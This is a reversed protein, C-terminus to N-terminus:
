RSFYTRMEREGDRERAVIAVLRPGTERSSLKGIAVEVRNKEQSRIMGKKLSKSVVSTGQSVSFSFFRSETMQGLLKTLIKLSESSVSTKSKTDISMSAEGIAQGKMFLSERRRTIGLWPSETKRSGVSKPKLVAKKASTSKKISAAHPVEENTESHVPHISPDGLLNFQAITKLDMPDLMSHKMVYEQRAQLTARGTSAGALVSKFFFQTLLDALANGEAPGYAITSSGFFAYAQNALYTTCIGHVGHSDPKYIEGGYCCEAAVITGEKTRGALQKAKVCIPNDVGDDGYFQPDVPGGHCNFFHSLPGLEAKTWLPGDPPSRKLNVASGFINELSEKTSEKWANATVAFFSAYDSKLRGTWNAAVELAEVLFKTSASGKKEHLDPLRGLVRTPSLHDEINSSFASECAYPLDSPVFEDLDDDKGYLPNQLKQHPVVDPAGLILLYHPRLKVFIKDIANKNSRLDEPTKVAKGDVSKMSSSSSLDIVRTKLGQKKDVAILKALAEKIREYGDGHKAKLQKSNTAIIKLPKVIAM